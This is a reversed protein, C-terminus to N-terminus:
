AYPRVKMEAASKGPSVSSATSNASAVKAIEKRTRGSPPNNQPGIPSRMPRLATSAM